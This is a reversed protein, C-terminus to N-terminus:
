GRGHFAPSLDHVAEVMAFQLGICIRPGAGFPLYAYRDISERAGPRFCRIFFDNFSGFPGSEYEEMPIGYRAIFPEIKRGSWRTSSTPSWSRTRGGPTRSSSTSARPRSDITSGFLAIALPKSDMRTM